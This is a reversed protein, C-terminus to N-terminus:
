KASSHVVHKELKWCRWAGGIIKYCSLFIDRCQVINFKSVTDQGGAALSCQVSSWAVFRAPMFLHLMWKIGVKWVAVSQNQVQM